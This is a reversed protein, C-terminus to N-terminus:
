SVKCEPEESFPVDNEFDSNGDVKFMYFASEENFKWSQKM